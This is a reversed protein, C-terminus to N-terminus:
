KVISEAAAQKVIAVLQKPSMDAKLVHKSAGHEIMDNLKRVDSLNSFAIVTTNPYKKRVNAKKLFGLGDLNPMLIDLLVVAPKTAELQALGEFGDNATHVEFGEHSLIKQYVTQLVVEDEIILVKSM